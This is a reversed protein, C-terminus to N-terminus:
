IHIEQASETIKFTMDQNSLAERTALDTYFGGATWSVRTWDRPWFSGRSFSIAVWELIRTQSIGHVSSGPPSCSIPDCSDSVVQHSLWMKVSYLVNEVLSGQLPKCCHNERLDESTFFQSMQFSGSASFSQLCSSFPIVSYSITPHCWQSLPCSSSYAGPTPSPCPLRALELGHPWLSDSLVSCSFQVSIKILNIYNYLRSVQLIDQNIKREKFTVRREKEIM